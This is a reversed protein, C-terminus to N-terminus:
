YGLILKAMQLTLKEINEPNDNMEQKLIAIKNIQAQLTELELVRKKFIQPTYAEHKTYIYKLAELTKERQNIMSNIGDLYFRYECTVRDIPNIDFEKSLRVLFEFDELMVQNEDFLGVKEFCEKAILWTHMPICNSVWLHDKDHSQPEVSTLLMPYRSHTTQFLARNYNSYTMRGNTILRAHDYLTALHWPYVIDDDDLFAVWKSNSNSVGANLAPTRGKSVKHNVYTIPFYRSYIDVLDQVSEGGDNVLVVEFDRFSQNALSTLANRLLHKRNLTRVIVSIQPTQTKEFPVRISTALRGTKFFFRKRNLDMHDSHVIKNKKFTISGYHFVFASRAIGLKYGSLIARMCYDDDEFNGRIYGEDLLGIQDIVSRRITACFFVLRGPEYCIGRGKLSLAYSDIEEPKIEKATQELQSGEGVYNTVPSVIGLTADVEFANVMDDLWGATPLTDNNLIVVYQGRASQIGFNVGGAFGLNERMRYYLFNSRELIEKEMEAQTNDGSANDVVIVEYTHNSGLKYVRDICDKTYAVANFVPIIISIEIEEESIAEAIAKEFGKSRTIKKHTKNILSKLGEERFIQIAKKVIAEIM